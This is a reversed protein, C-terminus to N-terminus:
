KSKKSKKFNRKEKNKKEHKVINTAGVEQVENKYLM